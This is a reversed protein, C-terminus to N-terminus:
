DSRSQRPECDERAVFHRLIEVVGEAFDAKAIYGVVSKVFDDANHPCASHGVRRLFSIDGSSDGIGLIDSLAVGLSEALRAVGAGKDIGEPLTDICRASTLSHLRYRRRGIVDSCFERIKQFNLKDSPCVTVSWERGPRITALRKYVLAERVEKEFGALEDLADAGILPDVIVDDIGPFVMAAGNECIGPVPSDILELLLQLDSQSRGSVLSIVATNGTVARRNYGRLAHLVDADFVFPLPPKLCGDIDILVLKPSPM